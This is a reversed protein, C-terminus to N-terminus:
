KNKLSKRKLKIYVPCYQENIKKKRILFGSNILDQIHRYTEKYSIKLERQIQSITLEKKKSLIDLIKVKNVNLITKFDKVKFGLRELNDFM